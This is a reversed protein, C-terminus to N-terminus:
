RLAKRLAAKIERLAPPKVRGGPTAELDLTLTGVEVEKFDGIRVFVPMTVAGLTAM